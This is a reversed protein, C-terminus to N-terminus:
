LWPAWGRWIACLNDPDRACNILLQVQGEVSQQESSTGEEYGQLKEKIRAITHKTALNDTPDDVVHSVEIRPFKSVELDATEDEKEQRARAKSAGKRWEYQPDSVVGSLITLLTDANERLIQTTEEAAAIFTGETGLPGMGDVIDRTLRFPVTEPTPLLHGQEFVIGFDIHVLEGTKQHVLINNAHRDGIGLMHGVISSVACTRTYAMKATHWAQLDHGFMEVFFFRFVPSFNECIRDFVARKEEHKASSVKMMEEMCLQFSWEGEWYRSHAGRKRTGRDQLYDLFPQTNDVWELIGSKPSLPVVNYTLLKLTKSLCRTDGKKRHSYNARSHVTRRRLLENAYTFVQQMIADQRIDDNGKVLQKFLTGKSGVCVLIKPRTLGSPALCCEPQIEKMLETGPPDIKFNGYDHNEIV